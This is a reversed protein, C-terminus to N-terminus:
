VAEVPRLTMARGANFADRTAQAVLSRIRAASLFSPILKHAHKYNM